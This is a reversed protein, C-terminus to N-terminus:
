TKVPKLGEHRVKIDRVWKSNINEKHHLILSQNQEKAYPYLKGLLKGLVKHQVSYAKRKTYELCGEKLDASQIHM